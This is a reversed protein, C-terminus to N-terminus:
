PKLEMSEGPDETVNPLDGATVNGRLYRGITMASVGLEKAIRKNSLGSASLEAAKAKLVERQTDTIVKLHDREYATEGDFHFSLFNVDKRVTALLVNEESYIHESNRAKIQKLYRTGVNKASEGIAFASDCFNIIMKSGQLDNRGIPKGADRKPTHALVLLSLEYKSKLGKLFKMMPLANRANETEDRLYTINDIILVKAGSSAVANELANNLFDEFHKFEGLDATEPNIDASILNTSFEYPNSAEGTIPDIESFRLEFQKASLEFDFYVVKQAPVNNKLLGDKDPDIGKSIANAIQVALISKGVNTDAFLICVEGEYWFDGFLKRPTPKSRSEAMREATTQLRFYDNPKIAGVDKWNPTNDIVVCIREKLTDTDAGEAEVCWRIYDSIDLGGKDPLERNPYMDLLKLSAASRILLKAVETAQTVGPLDHDQCIIVHQGQIFENFEERWNKFSTATFGLERLADADKEGECLFVDKQQEKAAILEPLRYPVKRVGELNWVPQGGVDYRRQRFNKPYYRVNEYLLRGEENVYPYIEHIRGKSKEFYVVGQSRNTQVVPNVSEGLSNVSPKTISKDFLDKWTLGLKNVITETSCGAFCKVLIRGEGECVSLSQHKDDHAPCNAAIGRGGRRVGKLRPTFDRLLMNM